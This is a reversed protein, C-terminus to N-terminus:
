LSLTPPIARIGRSSSPSLYTETARCVRGQSRSSHSLTLLTDTRHFWASPARTGRLRIRQLTTIATGNLFLVESCIPDPATPEHDPHPRFECRAHREAYGLYRIAPGM